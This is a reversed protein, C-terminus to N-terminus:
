NLVVDDPSLSHIRLGDSTTSLLWISAMGNVMFYKKLMLVCFMFFFFFSCLMYFVM